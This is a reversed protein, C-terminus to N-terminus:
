LKADQTASQLVVTTFISLQICTNTININSTILFSRTLLKAQEGPEVEPM